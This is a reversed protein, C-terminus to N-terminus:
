VRIQKLFFTIYGQTVQRQTVSRTDRHLGSRSFSARTNEGASVLMLAGFLLGVEEFRQRDVAQRRQAEASPNVERGRDSFPEVHQLDHRHWALSQM